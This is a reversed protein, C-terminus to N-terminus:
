SVSSNSPTVFHGRGGRNRELYKHSMHAMFCTDLANMVQRKEDETQALSLEPLVSFIVFLLYEADLKLDLQQLGLEFLKLM